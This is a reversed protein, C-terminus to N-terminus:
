LKCVININGTRLGLESIAENITRLKSLVAAEFFVLKFLGLVLLMLCMGLMFMVLSSKIPKM